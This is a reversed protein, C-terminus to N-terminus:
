LEPIDQEILLIGDVDQTACCSHFDADINAGQDSHSQPVHRGGAVIILLTGPAGSAATARDRRDNRKGLVIGVVREEKVVRLSEDCPLGGQCAEVNFVW